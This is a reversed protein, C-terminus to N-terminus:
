NYNMFDSNQEQYTEHIEPEMGPNFEKNRMVFLCIAEYLPIFLGLVSHIIAMNRSTFRGIIQFDVMAYFTKTVATKIVAIIVYMVGIFIAFMMTIGTGGSSNSVGILATGVGLILVLVVYLAIMIADLVLPVVLLWIGPRTIAKTKLPITEALEGQLYVRAFPIWALWPNAKGMRKALTYLALSKFVYNVVAVIFIVALAILYVTMFISFFTDLGSTSSFMNDYPMVYEYSNDFDM